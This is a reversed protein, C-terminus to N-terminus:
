VSSVTESERDQNFKKCMISVPIGDPGPSHSQFFCHVSVTGDWLTFTMTKLVAITWVQIPPPPAASNEIFKKVEDALRKEECLGKAQEFIRRILPLVSIENLLHFRRSLKRLLPRSPQEFTAQLIDVERAPALTKDLASPRDRLLAKRIPPDYVEAVFQELVRTNLATADLTHFARRTRADVGELYDKCRAEWRTFDAYRTPKEPPPASYQSVGVKQLEKILKRMLKGGMHFLCPQWWNTIHGSSPLYDDPTCIRYSTASYGKSEIIESYTM